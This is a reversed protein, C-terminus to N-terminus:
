GELKRILRAPNGAVITYPEVSKTVVSGAGVVAGTGIVVGKLIMTNAGIWVRNGIVVPKRPVLTWDKKGEYWQIVDNKRESWKTSHSDHDVITCGWSILVDSGIHISGVAIISSNGVFTRDGISVEAGRREFHIACEVISREGVSFSCHGPTQIRRFNVRASKAIKGTNKREKLFRFYYNLIHNLSIM